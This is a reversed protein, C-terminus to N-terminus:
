SVVAGQNTNLVTQERNFVYLLTLLQGGDGCFGVSCLM